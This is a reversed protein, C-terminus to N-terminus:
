NSNSKSKLARAEALNSPHKPDTPWGDADITRSYGHLELGKKHRDHCPRCLSQVAGYYFKYPDGDHPEIHDCVTALAVTGHKLCMACLPQQLLQARRRRVWRGTSYLQHWRSHYVGKSPM